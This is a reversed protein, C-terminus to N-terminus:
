RTIVRVGSPPSFVFTSADVPVNTRFSMLRIRRQVGNAETVEFQRVTADGVDIWVSAAKFTGDEPTKPM